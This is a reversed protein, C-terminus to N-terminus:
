SQKAQAAGPLPRRYDAARFRRPVYGSLMFVTTVTVRTIAKRYSPPNLPFARPEDDTV